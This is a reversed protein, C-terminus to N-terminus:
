GYMKDLSPVKAPKVESPQNPADPEDDPPQGADPQGADPLQGADPEDDFGDPEDAAGGLNGIVIRDESRHCHLLIVTKHVTIFFTNNSNYTRKCVCHMPKTWRFTLMNSKKKHFQQGDLYPAAMELVKNVADDAVDAEVVGDLVEPQEQILTAGPCHFYTWDSIL